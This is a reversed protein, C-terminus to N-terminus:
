KDREKLYNVPDRVKLRYGNETALREICAKRALIEDDCTLLFHAGGVCAASVHLSDLANLACNVSFDKALSILRDSSTINLSSLTREFGRVDKRKLSDFIQEIEFKVYDSSIITTEGRLAADAIKLFARSEARIRKSSQDDLPRCHVNTDLYIRILNGLM